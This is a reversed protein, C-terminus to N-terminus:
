RQRNRSKANEKLPDTIENSYLVKLKHLARTLAVYLLHMDMNNSSNYVTCSADNIIVADFELGKAAISTTVYVGSEYKSTKDNLYSVSINSKLLSKYLSLAEKETKCIIAVSKYGSNIWDNVVDRFEAESYKANHYEVIEGHREVSNARELQLHNLIANANDTIERTTRYSKNLNLLECDGDFIQDVVKEWNTINTYQYITQALDGYISFNANPNAKLLAYYHFLGYDQAEDIAIQRYKTKKGSLLYKMYNLAPLDEGSLKLRGSNYISVRKFMLMEESNLCKIYKDSSIVFKKYIDTIKADLNKYYDKIIKEGNKYVMDYIELTKRKAAEKEEASADSSAYIARYKNKLYNYIRNQRDIFSRLTIEKARDYNLKSFTGSTLASIIFDRDFVEVGDFTIGKDIFSGNFYDNMFAEIADKYELSNKFLRVKNYTDLEKQNKFKETNNSLSIKQEIYDSTFDIYRKQSIPETELDPLVSSIYDLFYNNPGLLLFTDSKATEKANYLLYAIRHLAVSTKGSGAVGQVIINKDLPKRIIRNQEDQISAIINKMKDDAHVNLYEQLIEDNTVIDTDLISKIKYNEIIIQRKLDVFGKIIGEPAEYSSYGKNSNYYMSSIPSRWDVILVKNDNTLSTRGIYIKQTENEGARTFDMRGFYPSSAVKTLNYVREAYMKMLSDKLLQAGRKAEDVTIIKEAEAKLAQNTEDIEEKLVENVKDLYKNEEDYIYDM